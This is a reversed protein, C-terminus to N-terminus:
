AAAKTVGAAAAPEGCEPCRGPTARLDYGCKACCGARSRGRRRLSSVLWAIPTIALLLALYPLPIAFLHYTSDGPAVPETIYVVGALARSRQPLNIMTFGGPAATNASYLVQRLLIGRRARQWATEASVKGGVGLPSEKLWFRTVPPDTFLLILRGDAAGVHLDAPLYSRAWWALTAACLVLSALAVLSFLRRAM